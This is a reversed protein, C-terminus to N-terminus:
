SCRTLDLERILFQVQTGQIPSKLRLWQVMMSAGGDGNKVVQEENERDKAREEEEKEIRQKM